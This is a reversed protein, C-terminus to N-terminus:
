AKGSAAPTATTLNAYLEAILSGNQLQKVRGEFDRRAPANRAATRQCLAVLSDNQSTFRARKAGFVGTQEGESELPITVPEVTTRPCCDGPATDNKVVTKDKDKDNSKEKEKEKENAHAGRKALRVAARELRARLAVVRDPVRLGRVTFMQELVNVHSPSADAFACVFQELEDWMATYQEDRRVGKLRALPARLPLPLRQVDHDHLRRLVATCQEVDADSLTPTGPRNLTGLLADVFAANLNHVISDGLTLRSPWCRTARELFASGKESDGDSITAQKLVDAFDQVHVVCSSFKFIRFVFNEISKGPFHLSNYFLHCHLMLSIQQLTAAKRNCYICLPNYVRQM